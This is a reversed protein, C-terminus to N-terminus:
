GRGYGLYEGLKSPLQIPQSHTNRQGIRRQSVTHKLNLALDISSQVCSQLIETQKSPDFSTPFTM